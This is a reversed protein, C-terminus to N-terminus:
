IFFLVHPFRPYPIKRGTQLEIDKLHACHNEMDQLGQLSMFYYFHNIKTFYISFSLFHFSLFSPGHM